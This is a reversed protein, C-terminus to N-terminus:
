VVRKKKPPMQNTTMLEHYTDIANLHQIVRHLVEIAESRKATALELQTVAKKADLFIDALADYPAGAPLTDLYPNGKRLGKTDEYDVQKYLREFVRWEVTPNHEPAYQMDVVRTLMTVYERMTFLEPGDAQDIIIPEPTTDPTTDSTTTNATM